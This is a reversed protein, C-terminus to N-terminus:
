LPASRVTPACACLEAGREDLQQQELEERLRQSRACSLRKQAEVACEAPSNCFHLCTVLSFPLCFSFTYCACAVANIQYM